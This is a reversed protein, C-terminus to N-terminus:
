ISLSFSRLLIRVDTHSLEDEPVDGSSISKPSNDIRIVHEEEWPEELFELEGGLLGERIWQQATENLVPLGNLFTVRYKPFAYLDEPTSHHRACVCCCLALLGLPLSLSPLGLSRMRALNRTGTSFTYVRRNPVRSWKSDLIVSFKM